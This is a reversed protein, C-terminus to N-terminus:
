PAFLMSFQIKQLIYTLLVGIGEEALQELVEMVNWRGQGCDVVAPNRFRRMIEKRVESDGTTVLVIDRMDTFVYWLPQYEATEFDFYKLEDWKPFSDYVSMYMLTDGGVRYRLAALLVLVVLNLYYWKSEGGTKAM